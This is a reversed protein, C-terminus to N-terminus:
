AENLEIGRRHRRLNTMTHWSCTYYILFLTKVIGSSRVLFPEKTEGFVFIIALCILGLSFLRGWYTLYLKRIYFVYISYFLITLFLGIAFIARVFGVDSEVKRRSYGRTGPAGDWEGAGFLTQLPDSPLFYMSKLTQTSSTQFEGTTQYAEFLEIARSFVKENFYALREKPLIALFILFILVLLAIGQFVRKFLLVISGNNVAPQVLLALFLLVSAFLGTRAIFIQVLTIFVIGIVLAIRRMVKKEQLFLIGGVFVGLAQLYSLGAGGSNAFGKMRYPSLNRADDIRLVGNIFGRLSSDVFTLVVFSSQLLFVFFLLYLVQSETYSSKLYFFLLYSGLIGEMFYWFTQQVFVLGSTAYVYKVFIFHFCTLLAVAVAYMVFKDNLIKRQIYPKTLAFLVM